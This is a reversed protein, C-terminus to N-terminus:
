VQGGKKTRKAAAMKMMFLAIIGAVLFLSGFYKTWRGPDRNVTFVSTVPRPEGPEYSSQYFTYGNWDLPENMSIELSDPPAGNDLVTVQSAFSRPSSSGEYYQIEFRELRLSFPLVLRRNMYSIQVDRGGTTLVAQDGLGLWLESGPGGKGAVIYIASPPAENGVQIKAPGYVTANAAQQIVELIRIRLGGQMGAPAMWGTEVVTGKEEVQSVKGKRVSGDRSFSRYEIGGKENVRVEFRAEDLRKGSESFDVGKPLLVFQALGLGIRSWGIDGGWLWLEQLGGMPAGEIKLRVAPASRDSDKAEVFRFVPDAHTLYKAIRLDFDPVRISSFGSWAPSWPVHIARTGKEDSLYLYADDMEVFGNAEGESIRMMADLGYHRTVWSGVLLLVIGLHALLFPTHRWRWPWRDVAVAVINVGLLFLWGAFWRAEYVYYRATKINYASELFTAVTLAVALGVIVVVALKLSALSRLVPNRSQSAM